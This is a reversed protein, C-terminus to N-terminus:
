SYGMQSNAIQHIQDYYNGIWYSVEGRVSPNLIKVAGM